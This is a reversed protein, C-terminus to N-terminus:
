TRKYFLLFDSVEAINKHGSNMDLLNVVVVEIKRVITIRRENTEHGDNWNSQLAVGGRFERAIPRLDSEQTKPCVYVFFRHWEGCRRFM